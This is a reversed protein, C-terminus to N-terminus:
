KAANVADAIAKLGEPTIDFSSPAVMSTYVKIGVGALCAGSGAGTAKFLAQGFNGNVYDNWAAKALGYTGAVCIGTGGLLAVVKAAEKLGNTISSM